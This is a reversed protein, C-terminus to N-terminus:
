SQPISVYIQYFSVVRFNAYVQVLKPLLYQMCVLQVITVKFYGGVSLRYAHMLSTMIIIKMITAWCILIKSIGLPRVFMYIDGPSIIEGNCGM